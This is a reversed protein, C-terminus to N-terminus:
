GARVFLIQYTVKDVAQYYTGVLRDTAPDYTLTYTSGPYNVDRLEIFVQIGSEDESARAVAVNIPSPNYYAADLEGGEDARRIDLVYGGDPRVWRGVIRQLGAEGPPHVPSVAEVGSGKRRVGRGAVLAIILALFLAAAFAAMAKRGTLSRFAM